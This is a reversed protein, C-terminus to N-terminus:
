ASQVKVEGDGRVVIDYGAYQFQVTDVATDSRSMFLDNLAEPNIAEYLPPLDVPDAGVVDAVASVVRYVPTNKTGKEWAVNTSVTPKAPSDDKSVDMSMERM